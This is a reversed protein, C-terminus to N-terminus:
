LKTVPRDSGEAKRFNGNGCCMREGSKLHSWKAHAIADTAEGLCNAGLIMNTQGEYRRRADSLKMIPLWPARNRICWGAGSGDWLGTGM